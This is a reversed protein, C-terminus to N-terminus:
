VRGELAATTRKQSTLIQNMHDSNSLSFEIPRPTNAATKKIGVRCCDRLLPREGIDELVTEIKEKLIENGKEEVGYIIVNKCRDDQDSVKRVAAEIKRPALATSCGRSVIASYSKIENQVTEHV